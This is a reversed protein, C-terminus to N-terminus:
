AEDRIDQRGNFKRRLVTFSLKNQIPIYSHLKRVVKRGISSKKYPKENRTFEKALELWEKEEATMEQGTFDECTESKLSLLDYQTDSTGITATENESTTTWLTSDTVTFNEAAITANNNIM